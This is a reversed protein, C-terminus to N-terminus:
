KMKSSAGFLKYHKWISGGLVPIDFYIWTYNKLYATETYFESKVVRSVKM